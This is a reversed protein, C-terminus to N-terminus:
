LFFEVAEELEVAPEFEVAAIFSVVLLLLLLPSNELVKRLEKL